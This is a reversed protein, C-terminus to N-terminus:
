ETADEVGDEDLYESIAERLVDSITADAMETSYESAIQRLEFRTEQPVRTAVAVRSNESDSASESAELRNM